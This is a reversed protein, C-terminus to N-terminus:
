GAQPSFMSFLLCTCCSLFGHEFVHKLYEKFGKMAKRFGQFGRKFAKEFSNFPEKFPWMFWGSKQGPNQPASFGYICHVTSGPRLSFGTFVVFLLLCM